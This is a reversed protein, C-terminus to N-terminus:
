QSAAEWRLRKRVVLIQDNLLLSQNFCMSAGHILVIQTLQALAQHHKKGKAHFNTM